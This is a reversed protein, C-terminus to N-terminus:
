NAWARTSLLSSRYGPVRRRTRSPRRLHLARGARYEGAVAPVGFQRREGKVRMQGGRHMLPTDRFPINVSRHAADKARFLARTQEFVRVGMEIALPRDNEAPFVSGDGRFYSTM